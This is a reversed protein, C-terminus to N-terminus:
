QGFSVGGEMMSPVHFGGAMLSDCYDIECDARAIVLEASSPQGREFDFDAWALELVGDFRQGTSGVLVILLPLLPHVAPRRLSSTRRRGSRALGLGVRVPMRM